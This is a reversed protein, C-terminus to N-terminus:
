KAAKASRRSLASRRERRAIAELALKMFFGFRNDGMGEAKAMREITALLKKDLYGGIMVKTKSRQNPM